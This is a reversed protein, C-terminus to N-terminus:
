PRVGLKALEEKAQQYDPRIELAKKFDTKALETKGASLLIRGRLLHAYSDGPSRRVAQNVDVLASTYDGKALYTEATRFLAIHFERDTEPMMAVVKKYDALAKDYDAKKFFADGRFAFVNSDKPNLEISRTFDVIAEDYKKGFLKGAGSEYLKYAEEETPTRATLPKSSSSKLNAMMKDLKEMTKKSSELTKISKVLEAYDPSLASARAFDAESLDMKGQERYAKGRNYFATDYNPNIQIARTFDAIAENLLGKKQYLAGRSAFSLAHNPNFKVAHTYDAIALDANGRTSYYYARNSFADAYDPKLRIAQNYDALAAADNKLGEYVQGRLRFAKASAPDLAIVVNFDELALGYGIGIYRAIGRNLYCTPSKPVLRICESYNRAAEEFKKQQLQENGLRLYEDATQQALGTSSIFAVCAVSFLLQRIKNKM